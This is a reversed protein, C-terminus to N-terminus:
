ARPARPSVGRRLVKFTSPALFGPEKEAVQGELLRLLFLLAPNVQVESTIRRRQCSNWGASPSGCTGGSGSWINFSSKKKKFLNVDTVPQVGGGEGVCVSM